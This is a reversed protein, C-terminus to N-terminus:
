SAFEYAGLDPASDSRATGPRDIAPRDSPNGRDRLVSTSRLSYDGPDGTSTFGAGYTSLPHTIANTGCAGSVFANYAYTTNGKGCAVASLFVNGIVRM